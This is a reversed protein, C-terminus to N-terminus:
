RRRRETPPAPRPERAPGPLLRPGGKLNVVEITLQAVQGELELIRVRLRTMVEVGAVNIGLNEMWESVQKIREVDRQSYLRVRGGMRQPKLFGWREYNRLTQAHLGVM